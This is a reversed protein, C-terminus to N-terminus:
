RNDVNTAREREAAFALAAQIDAETPEPSEEIIETNSMGSALWELVDGATIRM